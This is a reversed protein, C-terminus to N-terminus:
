SGTIITVEGGNRQLEELFIASSLLDGRYEYEDWPTEEDFLDDKVINYYDLTLSESLYEEVANIAVAESVKQQFTIKRQHKGYRSIDFRISSIYERESLSRDM